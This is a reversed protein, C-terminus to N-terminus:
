SHNMHPKMSHRLTEISRGLIGRLAGNSIGMTEEISHFDMGDLYRLTVALRHQEPLRGLENFLKEQVESQELHRDPKDKEPAPLKYDADSAVPKRKRCLDHATNRTIAHLWPMFKSPDRVRWRANWAKIVADQVADEAEEPNQLIGFAIAFLPGATHRIVIEFDSHSGRLANAIASTLEPNVPEVAYVFM